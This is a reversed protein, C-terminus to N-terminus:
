LRLKNGFQRRQWLGDTEIRWVSPVKNNDAYTTVTGFNSGTVSTTRGAKDDNYNVVAGFPDTIIKLKGSLESGYSISYNSTLDDFDVTESAIRSLEDYAYTTESIGATDMSTRNGANDYTFNTTPTDPVATGTPPTYGVQTTLGCSDYTIDTVAGRPDVIQSVSDDENYNWTAEM